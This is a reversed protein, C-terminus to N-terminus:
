FKFNDKKSATKRKQQAAKAAVMDSFDEKRRSARAEQLKEQYLAQIADEDLGELESPDITVEVDGEAKQTEDSKKESGSVPWKEKEPVVYVHDSGVLTSRDVHANKQELVTYLQKAAKDTAKRLDIADPTELGSPLSSAFGTEVSMTGTVASEDVSATEEEMELEESPAEHVQETEEEEEEEEEESTEEAESDLDGWSQLKDVEVDSDEYVINEGFVDGYIPNGQEDVPPKGWGGTQYGFTSNPPIPANLGPVKLSPYSPPPGYRRKATFGLHSLLTGNCTSSGLRRRRKQWESLKEFSM